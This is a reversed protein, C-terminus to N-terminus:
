EDSSPSGKAISHKRHLLEVARFVSPQVEVFNHGETVVSSLHVEAMTFRTSNAPGARFPEKVLVSLDLEALLRLFLEVDYTKQM